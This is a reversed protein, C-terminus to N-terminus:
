AEKSATFDQRFKGNEGQSVMRDSIRKDRTPLTRRLEAGARHWSILPVLVARAISILHILGGRIIAKMEGACRRCRRARQSLGLPLTRQWARATHNSMRQSM